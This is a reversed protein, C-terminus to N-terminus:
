SRAVEAPRPSLSQSPLAAAFLTANLLWFEMGGQGIFLPYNFTLAVAGVDYAFILAGWMALSQAPARIAIRYATRCAILIAAVYALVLPVGGDLLWGTCQIEVWIPPREPDGHDGFYTNMMGWRGLGAGLPYEPLLNVVTHELFLGRNSYYVQGADQDILTSLRGTVAQGGVAEAWYFTGVVLVVLLGGVELLRAMQGRWALIGLLTLSCVGAMVLISRVQSLYICFLGVAISGVCVVKTGVSRADLLFALGFLAAYLGATAAGGPVDTLGMPRFVRSGDALQITLSNVGSEGLAQVNTSLNPLFQGPFYVQLVGVVSSVVHFAWLTKMVRRFGNPDVRVRAVWFLPALIAVYLVAQAAGAVVNTGPNLFGFAVLGLVVLAATSAPHARGRGPLFALFLLSAAFAATRLPIRAPGLVPSLLAVQCAIQFLVFGQIWSASVVPPAPLPRRRLARDRSRNLSLVSEV